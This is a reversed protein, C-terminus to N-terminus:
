SKKLFMPRFAAAVRPFFLPIIAAFPDFCSLWVSLAAIAFLMVSRLSQSAKMTSRAQKEEKRTASQVTLGMLFFNAVATVGGLLNGTVVTWNWLGFILFVAQMLASLVLVFGAIYTTEKIVTPDVKSM